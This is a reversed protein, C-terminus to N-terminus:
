NLKSDLLVQPLHESDALLRSFLGLLDRWHLFFWFYVGIHLALTNKQSRTEFIKVEIM